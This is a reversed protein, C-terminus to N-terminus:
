QARHHRVGASTDLMKELIPTERRYATTIAVAPRDVSEHDSVDHGRGSVSCAVCETRRGDPDERGLVELVGPRTRGASIPHDGIEVDVGEGGLTRPARRRAPLSSSASGITTKGSVGNRSASAEEDISRDV